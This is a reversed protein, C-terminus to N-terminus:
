TDGMSNRHSYRGKLINFNPEELTQNRSDWAVSGSPSVEFDSESHSTTTRMMHNPMPSKPHSGDGNTNVETRHGPSGQTLLVSADGSQKDLGINTYPALVASETEGPNTSNPATDGAHQQVMALVSVQPDVSDINNKVNTAKGEVSQGEESHVPASPEGETTTTISQSSTMGVLSIKKGKGKSVKPSMPFDQTFNETCKAFRTGQGSSMSDDILLGFSNNAESSSDDSSSELLQARESKKKDQRSVNLM